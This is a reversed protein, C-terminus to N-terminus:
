GVDHGVTRHPVGACPGAARRRRRAPQRGARPRHGAGRDHGTRQRARALADAPVLSPPGLPTRRSWEPRVSDTNNTPTGQALFEVGDTYRHSRLLGALREASEAPDLGARVGYVLVRRVDQGPLPLPVTLGLGVDVAAPYDVLWRLEADLPPLDEDDVGLTDLQATDTLGVPLEDPIARGARIAPEAGDQEVRFLFRDPLTRVVSHRATSPAPEDFIPDGAPRDALNSPRLAEAVWPCAARRRGAAARAM